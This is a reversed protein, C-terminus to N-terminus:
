VIIAFPSLIERDNTFAVLRHNVLDILSLNAFMNSSAIAFKGGPLLGLRSVSRGIPITDIYKRTELDVISISGAEENAVYAKAGDPSVAVHSPYAPSLSACRSCQSLITGSFNDTSHQSLLILGEGSFHNATFPILLRGYDDAIINTPTAGFFHRHLQQGNTDFVALVGGGATEWVGYLNNDATVLGACWNAKEPKELNLPALNKQTLYLNGDPVALVFNNGGPALSFQAPHPIDLQSVISLAPLDLICLQGLSKSKAMTLYAQQLKHNVKIDIPSFEHPLPREAIIKGEPNSVLLISHTLADILLLKHQPLIDM